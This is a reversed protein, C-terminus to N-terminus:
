YRSPPTAVPDAVILGADFIRGLAPRAEDRTKGCTELAEALQQLTMPGSSLECLYLGDDAEIGHETAWAARAADYGVRGEEAEKSRAAVITSRYAAEAARGTESLSFRQSRPWRQRPPRDELM